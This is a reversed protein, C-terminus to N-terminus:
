TLQQKRRIEDIKSFVEGHNVWVKVGVTGYTTVAATRAYDINARLTHLPMKGQALTEDRAIEAGGLRGGLQIKVGLAGAKMVQDIARKMSRRFPFRREIDQAITNAVIQASRQPHEVEKISFTLKLGRNRFFRFELDKRLEEVGSGGRGIIVGPKGTHLIVTITNAGREIEVKTLGADRFKRKLYSRVEVDQKLFEAYRRGRAFWKSDWTAIIGLRFLKPHVKHGM